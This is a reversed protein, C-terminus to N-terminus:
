NSNKSHDEFLLEETRASLDSRGSNAMGIWAPKTKPKTERHLLAFLGIPATKHALLELIFEELRSHKQSALQRIKNDLEPELELQLTM